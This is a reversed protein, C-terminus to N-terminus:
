SLGAALGNEKRACGAGAVLWGACSFGAFLMKPPSECVAAGLEGNLKPAGAGCSLGAGVVVGKRKPWLEALGGEPASEAAAGAASFGAFLRNPFGCCVEAGAPLPNLKEWACGALVLINPFVVKEGEGAPPRNPFWFAAGVELLKNPSCPFCCFAILMDLSASGFGLVAASEFGCCAGVALIKPFAPLTSVAAGPKKPFGLLCTAGVVFKNAPKFVWGVGVDSKNPFKFM